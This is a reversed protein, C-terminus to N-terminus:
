HQRKRMQKLKNNEKKCEECYWSGKPPEKLSVCEYHFWEKKCTPGDCAVMEGYSVSQCYCYLAKDDDNNNNDHEKKNSTSSAGLKRRSKAPVESEVKTPTLNNYTAPLNSSTMPSAISVSANVKKRKMSPLVSATSAQNISSNRRKRERNKIEQASSQKTSRATTTHSDSSDSNYSHDIPALLGDAELVELDNELKKLHKSVLFLITNARVFNERQLSLSVDLYDRMQASIREEEVNIALSGNKKIYKSLKNSDCNYKERREAAKLNGEKIEKLLHDSENQLNSISHLIDELVNSPDM